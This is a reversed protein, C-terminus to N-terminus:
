WLKIKYAIIAIAGCVVAIKGLLYSERKELGAVREAVKSDETQHHEFHDIVNDLREIVTALHVKIESLDVHNQRREPPM